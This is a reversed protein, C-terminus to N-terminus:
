LLRIRRRHRPAPDPNPALNMMELCDPCTVDRWWATTEEISKVSARCKTTIDRGKRDRLLHIM